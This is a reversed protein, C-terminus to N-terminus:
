QTATAARGVVRVPQGARLAGLNHRVIREGAALGTLIQVRGLGDAPGATVNRIAIRDKDIAYVFTRGASTRLASSPALLANEVTETVLAGQVFMGARLEGGANDIVAYVTISRSGARTAPNIRDVRGEFRRAELGDVRFVAAQGVRVRGIEAAPVSAELQLRSLDVIRLIRGDIAIREGPQALREAVVGDIPSRLVADGLAKSAFALDAETARLKAAAVDFGSQVNDFANQSIFRKDLLARQQARNKGAWVLQAKAAEVDAERASVRARVETVDVRAVVQARRVREGERVSVQLLEGAVRAKVMAETLPALSGTVPVRHELRGAVVTYLDEGQFEAASLAPAPPVTKASGAPRDRLGVAAFAALALVVIVALLPWRLFGRLTPM